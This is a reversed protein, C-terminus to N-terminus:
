SIVIPASGSRSGCKVTVTGNGPSTNPGITWSWTANGSSDATQSELGKADSDTGSPTHYTISCKDGVTAKVAARATGGRAVPSTVTL